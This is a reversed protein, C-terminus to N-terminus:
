SVGFFANSTQPPADPGQAARLQQRSNFSVGNILMTFWPDQAGECGESNLGSCSLM